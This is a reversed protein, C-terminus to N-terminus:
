GMELNEHYSNPKLGHDELLLMASQFSPSAEDFERYDAQQKRCYSGSYMSQAPWCSEQVCFRSSVIPKRSFVKFPKDISYVSLLKFSGAIALKISIAASSLPSEKNRRHAPASARYVYKLPTTEKKEENEEKRDVKSEDNRVDSTVDDSSSSAEVSSSDLETGGGGGGRRRRLNNNNDDTSSTLTEPPDM